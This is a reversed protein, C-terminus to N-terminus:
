TPLDGIPIVSYCLGDLINSYSPLHNKAPNCLVNTRQNSICVEPYMSSRHKQTIVRRTSEVNYGLLACNVDLGLVRRFCSIVRISTSQQITRDM